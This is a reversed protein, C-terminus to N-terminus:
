NSSNNLQAMQSSVRESLNNLQALATELRAFKQEMRQQYQDVRKQERAIKSDIGSIINTYNEALVKAIGRAPKVIRGTMPDIVDNPRTLDSMRYGLSVAFGSLYPRAEEDEHVVMTSGGPFVGIGDTNTFTFLKLVAEPNKSLCEMLRSEEIVYIGEQNPDSRVGIDSLRTYLLGNDELYQDYLEQRRERSLGARASEDKFRARIYDDVTFISRSMLRDIESLSIQFGYNGIMIGNAEGGETSRELSGDSLVNSVLKGGGWKTHQKIFAKTMNVSEVIAKIKNAMDTVNNKVTITAKGVGMLNVVTGDIVDGVENTPRQLWSVGDNPYGDFRTM